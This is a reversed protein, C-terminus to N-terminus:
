KNDADKEVPEEVTEAPTEEAVPATEAVVPAPAQVPAVSYIAVRDVNIYTPADATGVNITLLGTMDNVATVVGIMGGITKIQDGPKLQALMNQMQKQRKKQPISTLIFMVAFVAVIAIIPWISGFGGQNNEAAEALTFINM